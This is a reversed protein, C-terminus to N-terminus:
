SASVPLAQYGCEITPLDPDFFWGGIRTVGGAGAVAAPWDNWPGDATIRSNEFSQGVLPVPQFQAELSIDGARWQTRPFVWHIFAADPTTFTPVAQEDDDWAKTWAEVCVLPPDASVSPWQAGITNGGSSFPDFGAMVDMLEADLVCLDLALNLRKVRDPKKLARCIAGVGNLQELDAGQIVEASIGLKITEDSAYGNNAGGNPAGTATLLAVRIAELDVTAFCHELGM